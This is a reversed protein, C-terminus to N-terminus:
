GATIDVAEFGGTGGTRECTCKTNKLRCHTVVVLALQGFVTRLDVGGLAKSPLKSDLGIANILYKLFTAGANKNLAKPIQHQM